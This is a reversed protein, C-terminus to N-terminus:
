SIIYNNYYKYIMTKKKMKADNRKTKMEKQEEKKTKQKKSRTANGFTCSLVIRVCM